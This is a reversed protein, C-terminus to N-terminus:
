LWLSILLSFYEVKRQKQTGTIRQSNPTPPKWTLPPDEKTWCLGAWYLLKRKAALRWEWHRWVVGCQNTWKIWSDGGAVWPANLHVSVTPCGSCVFCLTIVDPFLRKVRSCECFSLLNCKPSLKVKLTNVWGVSLMNVHCCYNLHSHIIQNHYNQSLTFFSKCSETLREKGLVYCLVEDQWCSTM